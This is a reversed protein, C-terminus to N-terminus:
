TNYKRFTISIREGRPIRKNEVVDYKRKTIGHQLNWRVNDELILCSRPELYLNSVIENQQRFDMTIGSQLSISVITDGFTNKDTHPAIGQGPFYHNILIQNAEEYVEDRIGELWSPIDQIKQIDSNYYNYKYGYQQTKRSLTHDWIGRTNIDDILIKEDEKTIIDKIYTIGKISCNSM